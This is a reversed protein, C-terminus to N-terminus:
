WATNIEIRQRGDAMTPGIQKLAAPADGAATAFGSFTFRRPVALALTGTGELKLPGSSRLIAVNITTGDGQLKLEYNSAPMNFAGALGLQEATLGISGNVRWAEKENSAPSARFYEDASQRLRIKGTPAFLAGAPHAMSLLRADAEIVTDRLEIDDFRLGMHTTGALAPANAEVFFGPRLRLLSLPDFRWSIPIVVPSTDAAIDIRGRGTWVTGSESAFRLATNPTGSMAWDFLAAPALMVLCAIFSALLLWWWRKTEVSLAQSM